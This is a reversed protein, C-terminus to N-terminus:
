LIIKFLCPKDCAKAIYIKSISTVTRSTGSLTCSREGNRDGARRTDSATESHIVVIRM